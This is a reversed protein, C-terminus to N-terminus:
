VRGHTPDAQSFFSFGSFFSAGQFIDTVKYTAANVSVALLIGLAVTSASVFKMVFLCFIQFPHYSFLVPSSAALGLLLLSSGKIM